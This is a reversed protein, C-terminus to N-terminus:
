SSLAECQMVQCTIVDASGVYNAKIMSSSCLISVDFNVDVMKDGEVRVEKDRLQRMLALFNSQQFKQSQEHKLSDLLQGATKALEDADVERQVDTKEDAVETYPQGLNTSEQAFDDLNFQDLVNRSGLMLSEGYSPLHKQANEQTELTRAYASITQGLEARGDMGQTEADMIEMKAADFAKEFAAEDFADEVTHGPEVQQATSLLQPDLNYFQPLQPQRQQLGM